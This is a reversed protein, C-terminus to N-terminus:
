EFLKLVIKMSITTSDLIQIKLISELHNQYEILYTVLFFVPNRKFLKM